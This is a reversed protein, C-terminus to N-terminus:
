VVVVEVRNKGKDKASYLARDALRYFKQARVMPTDKKHFVVGISVTVYPSVSNKEHKLHLREIDVRLMQAYALAEEKGVGEFLVGFEEGGLRFAYDSARQTHKLLISSVKRLVTDGEIHGYTDNFQKFYDIDLVCLSISRSERQARQLEKELIENFHRRNCLGTLGDTIALHEINQIEQDYEYYLFYFAIIYALLRLFHWLWWQADWVISNVFLIAAIGFLATHGAFLLESIDESEIYRRIFQITAVFFGIGGVMNLLNATMSFSDAPAFMEPISEPNFVSFLSVLLAFSAFYLPIQKYTRTTVEREQLWVSMFFIGGFFVALSHLWVFLNGPMVFAHFIDFIGMTLLAIGSYNFHTMQVSKKYKIFFIMSMVLAITGGIAEIASHFPINVWKGPFEQTFLEGLVIPMVICVAIVVFLDIYIKQKYKM